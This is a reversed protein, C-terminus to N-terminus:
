AVRHDERVIRVREVKHLSKKKAAATPLCGEIYFEYVPMSEWVHTAKTDSPSLISAVPEYFTNDYMIAIRYRDRRPAMSHANVTVFRELVQHLRLVNARVEKHFTRHSILPGTTGNLHSYAAVRLIRVPRQRDFPASPNSLAFLRETARFDEDKAQTHDLESWIFRVGGDGGLHLGMEQQLPISPVRVVQQALLYDWIQEFETSGGEGKLIFSPPGPLAALGLREAYKRWGRVTLITDLVLAHELGQGAPAIWKLPTALQDSDPSSFRLRDLQELVETSVQPPEPRRPLPVAVRLQLLRLTHWGTEVVEATAAAAPMTVHDEPNSAWTYIGSEWPIRVRSANLHAGLARLAWLGVTAHYPSQGRYLLDPFDLERSQPSWTFRGRALQQAFFLRLGSDIQAVPTQLTHLVKRIAECWPLVMHQPDMDMLAAHERSDNPAGFLRVADLWSDIRQMLYGVPTVHLMLGDNDHTEPARNWPEFQATLEPMTPMRWRDLLVGRAGLDAAAKLFDNWPGIIRQDGRTPTTTSEKINVVRILPFLPNTESALLPRVLALAHAAGSVGVGISRVFEFRIALGSSRWERGQHMPRHHRMWTDWERKLNQWAERSAAM